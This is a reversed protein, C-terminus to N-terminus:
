SLAAFIGPVMDNEVAELSGVLSQGRAGSKEGGFPDSVGDSAVPHSSPHSLSKSPVSGRHRTRLLNKDHSSGGGNVGTVRCHKFIEQAKAPLSTEEGLSGGNKEKESGTKGAQSRAENPASTDNQARRCRICAAPSRAAHDEIRYKTPFTDYRGSGDKKDPPAHDPGQLAPQPIHFAFRRQAEDWM